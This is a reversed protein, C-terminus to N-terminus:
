SSYITLRRKSVKKGKFREEGEDVREREREREKKREKKREKEKKKEIQSKQTCALGSTTM